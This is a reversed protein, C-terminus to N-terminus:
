DVGNKSTFVAIDYTNLQRVANDLLAPNPPPHLEIVPFLLPVAGASSLLAATDAAQDKMRTVLLQRGALPHSDFWSLCDASTEDIGPIVDFQIHANKLARADRLLEANSCGTGKRIRAVRTGEQAAKLLLRRADSDTKCFEITPSAEARCILPELSDPSISSDALLLASQNLRALANPLVLNPSLNGLGILAVHNV